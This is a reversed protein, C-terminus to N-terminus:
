SSLGRLVTRSASAAGTCKEEDIDIIKRKM